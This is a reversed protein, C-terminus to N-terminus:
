SLDGSAITVEQGARLFQGAATVVIEGDNLGGGVLVDGTRYRAVTVARESVTNTRPDVIWVRAGGPGVSLAQWPLAVLRRAEFQAEGIVAAGLSMAPPPDALSVKVRVTGTATDFTPSIERVAGRAEVAPDSVLRVRIDDKPPDEALLAEYIDFVADRAGAQAVAFVTQAAAVVQGAEANRTTVIGDADARLVTFSLQDRATGVDAEASAVSGQATRLQEEAADFTSRTTYGSDILSTQRRFNTEAQALTARAAQLTAEAAQLDAQQEATELTALIDGKRVTDSVDVRREAIRGAIRFSLDSEVRAAITGTLSITRSIDDFRITQVRVIEPTRPPPAEPESCALLFVALLPAGARLAWRFRRISSQRMRM